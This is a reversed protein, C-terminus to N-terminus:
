GWYNIMMEWNNFSEVAVMRVDLVNKEILMFFNTKSVRDLVNPAKKFESFEFPKETANQFVNKTYCEGSYIGEHSGLLHCATWSLM